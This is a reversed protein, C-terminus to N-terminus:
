GFCGAIKSDHESELVTQMLDKPVWLKMKRYLIGDEIMFPEKVQKAAERYDKDNQGADRVMKMINIWKRFKEPVQELAKSLKDKTTATSIHGIISAEPHTLIRKDIRLPFTSAQAKTCKETCRLTTFSINAREAWINCPQHKALWWYPLIVDCDSDLPAVEFSEAVFHKKYQLMFPVM